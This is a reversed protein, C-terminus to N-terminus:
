RVSAMSGYSYFAFPFCVGSWVNGMAFCLSWLFVGPFSFPFAKSIVRSKQHHSLQSIICDHEHPRVLLGIMELNQRVENHSRPENSKTRDNSRAGWLDGRPIMNNNAMCELLNWAM